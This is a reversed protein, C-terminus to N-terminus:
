YMKWIEEQEFMEYDKFFENIKLDNVQELEKLEEKLESKIEELSEINDILYNGSYLFDGKSLGNKMEKIAIKGEKKQLQLLLIQITAM